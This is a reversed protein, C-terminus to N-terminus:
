RSRSLGRFLPAQVLVVLAVAATHVALLRLFLSWGSVLSARDPSLLFQLASFTRGYKVVAGETGHSVALYALPLSFVAWAVAILGARRNRGGLGAAILSGALSVILLYLLLFFTAAPGGGGAMLETLNDTAAWTVVIPYWLLFIIAAGLGWSLLARRYPRLNSISSRLNDITFRRNCDRERQTTRNEIELKWNGIELRREGRGQSLGLVAFAAVAGGALALSVLSFLAVFRGIMEWEWPWGLVPSGVIDHISEMPVATRLLIWLGLCHLFAFAPFVWPGRRRDAVYRAVLIPAGCIWYIAGSLLFISLVRHDEGVLERVNYPVLPSRIVAWGLFTLVFIGSASSLLPFRKNM